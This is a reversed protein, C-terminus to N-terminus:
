KNIKKNGLDILTDLFNLLYDRQTKEKFTLRICEKIQNIESINEIRIDPNFSLADELNEFFGSDGYNFIDHPDISM